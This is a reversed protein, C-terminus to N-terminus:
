GFLVLAPAPADLTYPPEDEKVRKVEEMTDLWAMAEGLAPPEWPWAQGCECLIQYNQAHLANGPCHQWQALYRNKAAELDVTM